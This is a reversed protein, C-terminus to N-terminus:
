RPGTRHGPRLLNFKQRLVTHQSIHAHCYQIYKETKQFQSGNSDKKDPGLLLTGSMSCKCSGSRWNHIAGRMRIRWVLGKLFKNLESKFVKSKSDINRITVPLLKFINAGKVSISVERARRVAVPASPVLLLGKHSLPVGGEKVPQSHCVTVKALSPFAWGLITLTIKYQWDELCM